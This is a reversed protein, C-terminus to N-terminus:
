TLIEENKQSEISKIHKQSKKHQLVHSTTYKGGCECANKKGRYEKIKDANEEVYQKGREKVKDSNEAYYNRHKEKIKEINENYHKKQYENISATNEAYYDKQREKNKEINELYYGKQYEKNYEKIKDANEKRYEKNYEKQREKEEGDYLCPKYVNLEPKYIDYHEREYKHLEISSKCDPYTQVLVMVWDNSWGGNERIFVYLAKNYEESKVNKCNSKHQNKRNRFNTTSGVYYTIDKYAIRYVLSKSYDIAKRPM